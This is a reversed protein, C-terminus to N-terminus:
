INTINSLIALHLQLVIESAVASKELKVWAVRIYISILM